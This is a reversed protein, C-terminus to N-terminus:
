AVEGDLQFASRAGSVTACNRFVDILNRSRCSRKVAGDWNESEFAAAIIGIVLEFAIGGSEEFSDPLPNLL